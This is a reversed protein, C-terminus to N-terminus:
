GKGKGKMLKERTWPVLRVREIRLNGCMQEGERLRTRVRGKLRLRRM